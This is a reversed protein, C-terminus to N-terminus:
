VPVGKREWVKMHDTTRPGISGYAKSFQLNDALAHKCLESHSLREEKGDWICYGPNQDLCTVAISPNYELGNLNVMDQNIEHVIQNIDLLGYRLSGQFRNPVNTPDGYQLTKDEHLLPGAGHRTAYSRTVYTVELEDHLHFDEILERVNGTGTNSRTVYPFNEHNQDLMLGQAGEFIVQEAFDFNPDGITVWNLFSKVDDKFNDIMKESSLWKRYTADPELGLEEIRVPVWDNVIHMLLDDFYDAQLTSVNLTMKQCREVTENIGFGCTGHQNKQNTLDNIIMDWPTTVFCFPSIYVDPNCQFNALLERRERCFFMPNAIFFKSLYTQAGHLSGSGFHHFVHRAWDSLVVTHGAQAGGNFRVVISKSDSFYETMRGKGEDGMGSGIIAKIRM